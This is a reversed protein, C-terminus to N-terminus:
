VDTLIRGYETLHGTTWANHALLRELVDMNVKYM